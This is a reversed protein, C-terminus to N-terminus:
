TGMLLTLYLAHSYTLQFGLVCAVTLMHTVFYVQYCCVLKVGLIKPRWKRRLEAIRKHIMVDAPYVYLESASELLGLIKVDISLNRISHCFALM